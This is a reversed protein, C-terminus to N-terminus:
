MVREYCSSTFWQYWYMPVPITGVVEVVKGM